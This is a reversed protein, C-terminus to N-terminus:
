FPTVSRPPVPASDPRQQMAPRQMGMRQGMGRHAMRQRMQPNMRNAMPVNAPTGAVGAGATPNLSREATMREADTNQFPQGQPQGMANPPLQKQMAMARRADMDGRGQMMRQRMMASNLDPATRMPIQSSNADPPLQTPLSLGGGLQQSQDAWDGQLQQQGRQQALRQRLMDGNMRYQDLLNPDTEM